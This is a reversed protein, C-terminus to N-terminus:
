TDVATKADTTVLGALIPQLVDSGCSETTNTPILPGAPTCAAATVWGPQSVQAHGASYAVVLAGAAVALRLTAAGTSFRLQNM